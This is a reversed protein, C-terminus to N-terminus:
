LSLTQVAFRFLSVLAFLVDDGFSNNGLSCAQNGIFPWYSRWRGNELIDNITWVPNNDMGQTAGRHEEAGEERITKM